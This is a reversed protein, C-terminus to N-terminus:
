GKLALATALAASQTVVATRRASEADRAAEIEAKLRSADDAAKAGDLTIKHSYVFPTDRFTADDTFTVTATGTSSGPVDPKFEYTWAM